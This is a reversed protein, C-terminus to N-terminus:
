RAPVAVSAGPLLTTVFMVIIRVFSNPHIYLSIVGGEEPKRKSVIKSRTSEERPFFGRMSTPPIGLRNQLM